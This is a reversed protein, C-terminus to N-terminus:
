FNLGLSSDAHYLFVGISAGTAAGLTIFAAFKRRTHIFWFAATYLLFVLAM